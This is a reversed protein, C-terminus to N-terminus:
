LPRRSVINPSPLFTQSQSGLRLSTKSSMELSQYMVIGVYMGACFSITIVILMTAVPCDPVAVCPSLFSAWIKDQLAMVMGTLPTQNSKSRGPLLAIALRNLDLFKAVGWWKGARWSSTHERITIRPISHIMVVGRDRCWSDRLVMRPWYARPITEEQATTEKSIWFM